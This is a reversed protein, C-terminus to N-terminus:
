RVDLALKVPVQGKPETELKEPAGATVRTAEVGADKLASAVGEARRSALAVVAEAPLPQAENLRQLLDQYFAAADPVQPEGQLLQGVRRWAPVMQKASKGAAADAGSSTPAASEAARRREDLAPEGFRAVYLQRLAKRVDADSFDVPPPEEGPALAIGAGGAVEMRVARVKLAAPDATEGYPAAVSVVLQPKKALLQAVQQIKEREPPALRDSGPDFHIAEMTEGNVGLLAGLARFPATVIKALLAGIAKWVLAAYSFQPDDLDGSVPLAIDIRGQDDKLIAIALQLPLKLADPGDVREGLTLRDIVIQNEGQLRRDRLKYQLDLSIKGEAVKYGAFKTSYPSAPVMDVNKFVVNLDTNQAPAFVNLDGRARMAGFEDVRGDLEVQTRAAAETSLGTVVGNLEHIRAAFQPLLSLDAFDLRANQVHLRRVRVPFPTGADAAAQAAQAPKPAAVLLRAAHLSRDPEIVMRADLGSVHLDPIDVLDPGLSATVRDAGLRKWSAFTAGEDDQLLLGAVEFSGLYRLRAPEPGAAGASIRGQASVSGQALKLKVYKRLLPQLPALALQAVRVEAQVAGTDPVVSGRAALLGSEDVRAGAEFRLPRRTDSSADTLTAAAGHVRLKMGTAEDEVEAALESLEVRQIAASWPPEVAAAAQPAGAGPLLDALNIRGQADRRVRVAAGRAHLRAFSAKRAGLDVSGGDVGLEALTFPTLEGQSLTVDALAVSADEVQMQLDSGSLQAALRLQVRLKGAAARLPPQVTEDQVSLTQEDVVLRRLAFTWPQPVANAPPAAPQSPGSAALLLSGLDLQGQADRLVAMRGGTGRLEGVSVERAPWAADIDTAELETLTAFADAGGERGLAVEKLGLRADILAAEWKGGAYAFRYPLTASLRGAAMRARTYPKFYGAMEPLSLGDLTLKGHGRLPNLSTQGQWELAGGRKTRASFRLNDTEGPLTSLHDLTIDIPALLNDYGAQRDQFLVQGRELTVRAIQLRPPPADPEPPWRRSVAELLEAVNFRGDPAIDLTARPGALRVEGFTWARQAISRWEMQVTLADVAFLPQGGAEAFGLKGTELRLTFPNFRVEQVSAQRGLEEAVFRPLQREIAFPLAWFGVAAYAALLLVAVALWRTFPSRRLVHRM